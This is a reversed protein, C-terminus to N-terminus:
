YRTLKEVADQFTEDFEHKYQYRNESAVTSYTIMGHSLEATSIGPDFVENGNLDRNYIIIQINKETLPYVVMAYRIEDNSNINQLLERASSLLMIRLKEQSVPIKTYFCLTFEKIIFDPMVFGGGISRLNYQKEISKVTTAIISDAVTEAKSVLPDDSTNACGVSLLFAMNIILLIVRM